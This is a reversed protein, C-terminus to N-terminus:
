AGGMMSDDWAARLASKVSTHPSFGIAACAKEFSGYVVPVDDPRVLAPDVRLTVPRDAFSLLGEIVSRISRPEGSCINFVQGWFEGDLLRCYGEVADEVALFDRETNLNGIVVEASGPMALAAKARMLIAGVVLTTPIGAGILNFPRVVVIKLDGRRAYDLAALTFAYKSIAYAGTPYCPSEETIPMAANRANGYEAASGVALMRAEPAHERLAEMVNVGGQLNVAFISAAPGRTLGALHYVLDPRVDAVLHSIAAGDRVDAQIYTHLGSSAPAKPALDSGVIRLDRNAQLRSVLHRSSFGGAGTILATLM